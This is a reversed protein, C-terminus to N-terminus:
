CCLKFTDSKRVNGDLARANLIDLVADANPLDKIANDVENMQWLDSDNSQCNLVKHDLPSEQDEASSESSISEDADSLLLNQKKERSDVWRLDDDQM